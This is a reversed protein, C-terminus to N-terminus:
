VPNVFKRVLLEGSSKILSRSLLRPMLMMLPIPFTTWRTLFQQLSANRISYMIWTLHASRLYKCSPAVNLSLSRRIAKRLKTPDNSKSAEEALEELKQLDSITLQPGENSYISNKRQIPVVHEEEVGDNAQPKYPRSLMSRRRGLGTSTSSSASSSRSLSVLGDPPGRAHEKLFARFESPALEPHLHAPVWFLHFPDDALTTASESSSGSDDERSKTPSTKSDSVAASAWAQPSLPPATTPPQAPLDPDLLLTGPGGQTTSRRRIDRLAEFEREIALQSPQM